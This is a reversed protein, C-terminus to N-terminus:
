KKVEIQNDVDTVGPTKRAQAEIAAREGDTKVPGRLTVKGGITIIKVNKATFSLSKDAVVAKRIMATIKREAESGGQDMPTVAGHRDRDNTRTNDANKTRDAEGPNETVPALGSSASPGPAPTPPPSTSSSAGGTGSSGNAPTSRTAGSGSAGTAYGGAGGASTATDAPPTPMDHADEDVQTSTTRTSAVTSPDQAPKDSGCAVAGLAGTTALAAIWRYRM